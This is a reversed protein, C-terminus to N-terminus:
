TRRSRRKRCRWNTPSRSTSCAPRRGDHLVRFQQPTLERLRQAVAAEEAGVGERKVRRRRRGLHRRRARHRDRRRHDDADSSKPIFGAAGHDLARRMVNPEERASVVIVPLQPQTARLHVLASFGHAGPMNLDLLLLDADPHAEAMAYLAEASDAEVLRAGPM